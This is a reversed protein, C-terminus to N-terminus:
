CVVRERKEGRERERERESTGSFRPGTFGRVLPGQFSPSTFGRVLSGRGRWVVTYFRAKETVVSCEVRSECLTADALFKPSLTKFFFFSYLCSTSLSASTVLAFAYGVWSIQPPFRSYHLRINRGALFLSDLVLNSNSHFPSWAPSQLRSLKFSCVPTLLSIWTVDGLSVSGIEGDRVVKEKCHTGPPGTANYWSGMGQHTSEPPLCGNWCMRCSPTCRGHFSSTYVLEPLVSRIM